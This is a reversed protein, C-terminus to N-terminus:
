MQSCRSSLLYCTDEDTDEDCRPFSQFNPLYCKLKKQRILNKCICYLILPPRKSETRRRSGPPLMCEGLSLCLCHALSINPTSQLRHYNISSIQSTFATHVPLLLLLLYLASYHLPFKRELVLFLHHPPM